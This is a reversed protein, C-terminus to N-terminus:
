GTADFNAISLPAKFRFQCVSRRERARFHEVAQAVCCKQANYRDEPAGSCGDSVFESEFIAHFDETANAVSCEKAGDWRLLAGDRKDKARNWHSLVFKQWTAQAVSSKLGFKSDDGACKERM